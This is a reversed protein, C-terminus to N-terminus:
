IMYVQPSPENHLRGGGGGGGGATPQSDAHRILAGAGLGAWGLGWGGAGLNLTSEARSAAWGGRIRM